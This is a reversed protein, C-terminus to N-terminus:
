EIKKDIQGVFAVRETIPILISELKSSLTQVLFNIQSILNERSVILHIDETSNEWDSYMENRICVNSQYFRLYLFKFQFFLNLKLM